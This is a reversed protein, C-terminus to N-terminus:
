VRLAAAVHTMHRDAPNHTYIVQPKAARIIEKLESIVTTSSPDKVESSPHGLMVLASYGGVVAAKIQEQERIRRMQEDTHDRYPGSRPSGAGDTLIVATFWSDNKGFCRSIGDYAMIETDDQHASVALHTTRALAEQVPTGDPVFIKKQIGNLM